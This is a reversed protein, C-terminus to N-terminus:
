AAAAGAPVPRRYVRCTDPRRCSATQPKRGTHRREASEAALMRPTRHRWPRPRVIPLEATWHTLDIAYPLLRAAPHQRRIVPRDRRVPRHISTRRRSLAMSARCRSRHLSLRRLNCRPRRHTAQRLGPSGPVPLHRRPRVGITPWRCRVTEHMTRHSGRLRRCRLAVVGPPAAVGGTSTSALSRSYYPDTRRASGTGPPPVKTPGYAAFPDTPTTSGHCGALLGVFLMLPIAMRDM